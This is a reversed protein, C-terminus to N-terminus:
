APAVDIATQNVPQESGDPLLAFLKVWVPRTGM